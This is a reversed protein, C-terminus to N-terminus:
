PKLSSVYAVIDLIDEDNLKQVIPRMLTAGPGSRTYHQFDSLQRALYSPSRGALSPFKDNGQLGPGHCAACALTKGNGGGGREVLEEGKKLAGMPVYAIFGSRPNRLPETQEVDEPTEVIRM